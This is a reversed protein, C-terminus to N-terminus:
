SFRKLISAAKTVAEDAAAQEDIDEAAEAMGDGEGILEQALQIAQEETLEGNAVAQQIAAAVEDPTLGDEAEQQLIALLAQAEEESCEGNAVMEQLAELVDEDTVDALAQPDIDNEVAAAIKIADDVGHAYAIKEQETQLNDMWIQHSTEDIAAKKAFFVNNMDNNNNFYNKAENELEIAAESIISKAEEVGAQKELIDAVVRQGEETGMILSGISALKRFLDQDNAIRSPLDFSNSANTVGGAKKVVNKSDSTTQSKSTAQEALRKSAEEIYASLKSLPATPSTVAEDKANGNEVAQYEGLGVGSPKSTIINNLCDAQADTAANRPMDFKKKNEEDGATPVSVVGKETPDKIGTLAEEDAAKKSLMGIKDAKAKARKVFERYDRVTSSM